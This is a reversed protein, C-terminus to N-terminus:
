RARQHRKCATGGSRFFVQSSRHQLHHHAHGSQQELQRRESRTPPRRGSGYASRELAASEPRVGALLCFLGMPTFCVLNSFVAASGFSGELGFFKEFEVDLLAPLNAPLQPRSGQLPDHLGSIDALTPSGYVFEKEYESPTMGLKFTDSHWVLSARLLHHSTDLELCAVLSRHFHDFQDQFMPPLKQFIDLVAELHHASVQAQILERSIKSPHILGDDQSGRASAEAPVTNNQLDRGGGAGEEEDSDENEWGSDQDASGNLPGQSNTHLDGDGESPEKTEGSSAPAQESTSNSPPLDDAAAPGSRRLALKKFKIGQGKIM